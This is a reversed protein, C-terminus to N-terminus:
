NGATQKVAVASKVKAAMKKIGDAVNLDIQDKDRTLRIAESLAENIMKLSAADSEAAVAATAELGDQLNMLLALLDERILEIGEEGERFRREKNDRGLGLVGLRGGGGLGLDEFEEAIKAESVAIALALERVDNTTRDAVQADLDVRSASLLKLKSALEARDEMLLKKDGVRGAIAQFFAGKPGAQGTNGLAEAATVYIWGLVPKEYDGPLSKARLLGVLTKLTETQNKEPLNALYRTHRELGVLAGALLRRPVRENTVALRTYRNLEDNAAPLPAPQPQNDSAYREDLLGMLYVANYQVAPHYRSSTAVQKAWNFAEGTIWSQIAPRAPWLFRSFLDSRLKGLDELAEPSPQTMAPLYYKTIYLRFATDQDDSGRGDKVYSRYLSGRSSLSKDFDDGQYDQCLAVSSLATMVAAALATRLGAAYVSLRIAKRVNAM